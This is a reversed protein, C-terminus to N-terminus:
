LSKIVWRICDVLPFHKQFFEIIQKKYKYLMIFSDYETAYVYEAANKAGRGEKNVM